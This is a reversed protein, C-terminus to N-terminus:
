CPLIVLRRMRELEIEHSILQKTAYTLTAPRAAGPFTVLEELDPEMRYTYQGTEGREQQYALNYALHVSVVNGLDAKEKASFLQTNVPRGSLDSLYLAPVCIFIQFFDQSKPSRLAPRIVHLITPLIERVLTGRTCYARATPEMEGTVVEVVSSARLM